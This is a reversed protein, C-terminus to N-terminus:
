DRGVVGWCLLRAHVDEAKVLTDQYETSSGIVEDLFEEIEDFLVEIPWDSIRDYEPHDRFRERLLRDEDTKELKVDTLRNRLQEARESVTEIEGVPEHLDGSSNDRLHQLYQILTEQEKSFSDGQEFEGQKQTTRISSLREDLYEEIVEREDLLESVQGSLPTGVADPPIQLMRVSREKVGDGGFPLYYFARRTRGLPADAGDDFWM